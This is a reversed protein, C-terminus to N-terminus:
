CCCAGAELFCAYLPLRVVKGSESRLTVQDAAVTINKVRDFGAPTPAAAMIYNVVTPRDPRLQLVTRHGKASIPNSAAAEALGLHFYTTVEELGLVNIHRGNWPEYHRGGNSHWVLTGTLVKPDKLAFWVYRQKPFSVATWAVDLKPDSVLQVIDEFGRRAPYHSLDASTGFVTPVGALDKFTAGPKLCSYGRCAPNETPQVFVQAYALRSTSILGCGEEDPFKLMAHHGLNMPGAMGSIVHQCYVANQGDILTILKDIRGKRVKTRLSAHLMHVGSDEEVAELEWAANAAEGHPPHHEARYPKENGGFPMCFFDGRLAELLPILRPRPREQAWPAVSLPRIKRGARDYTIPGLHGGLRTLFVEVNKSQMRWSPQGLVTQLKGSKSM